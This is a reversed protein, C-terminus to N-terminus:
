NLNPSSTTSSCSLVDFLHFRTSATLVKVVLVADERKRSFHDFARLMAELNKRFDEPNLVTLYIRLRKCAKLRAGVYELFTSARESSAARNQARSRLFNYDLPAV